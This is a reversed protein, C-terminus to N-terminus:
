KAQGEQISEALEQVMPAEGFVFPTRQHFEVPELTLIPDSGNTARGGLSHIIHSIPIAEYILRLHGDDYGKRSDPPYAFLGGTRILAGFHAALSGYWRMNHKTDGERELVRSAFYRRWGEDWKSINSFNACVLARRSPILSLTECGSPTLRYTLNGLCLTLELTHRYIFVGAALVKSGAFDSPRDSANYISFITGPPIGFEYAKSGDFPDLAITLSGKGLAVLGDAEESVMSAVSACETLSSTFTHHAFVDQETQRDGSCNESDEEVYDWPAEAILKRQIEEAAQAVALVAEILHSQDESAKLSKLQSVITV